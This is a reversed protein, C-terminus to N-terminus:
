SDSAESSNETLSHTLIVQSTKFMQNELGWQLDGFFFFLSVKNFVRGLSPHIRRLQIASHESYVATEQEGKLSSGFSRHLVQCLASRSPGPGDRSNSGASGNPLPGNRGCAVSPGPTPMWGEPSSNSCHAKGKQLVLYCVQAKVLVQLVSLDVMPESRSRMKLLM